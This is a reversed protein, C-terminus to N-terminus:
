KHKIAHKHDQSATGDTCHPCKAWGWYNKIRRLRITHTIHNFVSESRITYALDINNEVNYMNLCYLRIIYQDYLDRRTICQFYIEIICGSITPCLEIVIAIIVDIEQQSICNRTVDRAYKQTVIETSAFNTACAREVTRASTRCLEKGQAISINKTFASALPVRFHSHKPLQAFMEKENNYVTQYLNFQQPDITLTSLHLAPVPPAQIQQIYLIFQRSSCIDKLFACFNEADVHEKTSQLATNIYYQKKHPITAIQNTYPSHPM